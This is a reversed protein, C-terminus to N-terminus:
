YVRPIYGKEFENIGKYLNRINKNKSNTDVEGVKDKLYESKKGRLEAPKVNKKQLWQVRPKKRQEV